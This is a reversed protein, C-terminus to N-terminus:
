SKYPDTAKIFEIIKCHRGIKDKIDKAESDRKEIIAKFITKRTIYDDHTNIQVLNIKDKTLDQLFDALASIKNELTFIVTYIDPSDKTWKVFIVSEDIEMMERANNCMKHHVIVKDRKRFGVIEDGRKPHCCSDFLVTKFKHNSYVVINTFKQKEIKFRNKNLFLKFNAKAYKKLNAVMNILYISDTAAKYNKELINEKKLWDLATKRDIGFIERIIKRGIKKDLERIKERCSLKLLKIARPTKLDGIWSCRYHPTEGMQIKIVNGNKLPKLLNVPIENIFAKDAREGVETHILYAFDLVTSGIPLIFKEGDKSYVTIENKEFITHKASDYEDLVIEKDVKNHYDIDDIWSMDPFKIDKGKYKWHAAIGHEAIQHMGETRIQAEIVVGNFFFMTHLTQYGNEKPNAIYDKFRTVLPDIEIHLAGLAKYCDIKEKTVIRIALLDTIEDINIAKRKTKQEISYFHKIRKDIFFDDKKFGYKFMIATVTSIFSNLKLHLDQSHSDIYKKIKNFSHPQLYKFSLDELLIKIVSIGLKHAIGSYIHLSEESIRIQKEVPLSDLTLMNHVRDCLKIILVEPNKKSSNLLKGFSLASTYLKEDANIKTLGDVLNAINQNFKMEIEEICCDSDEVVDHMLASCVMDESGDFHAVLTSVLIPHVIYPEGSKRTVGKHFQNAMSVAMEILPTKNINKYLLELAKEETITNKIKSIFENM